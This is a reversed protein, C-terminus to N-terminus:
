RKRDLGLLRATTGLDGGEAMLEHLLEALSMNGWAVARRILYPTPSHPEIRNLYEAIEALRRYADDRSRLPGWGVGEVPEAPEASDAPAPADTQDEPPQAPATMAEGRDNLVTEVFARMQQLPEALRALSPADRGCLTDLAEALRGHAGIAAALDEDLQHYFPSPTLGVSTLFRARTVAGEAEAKEFEKRQRQAMVDMLQAKQWDEWVYDDAEAGTVRTVPVHQLALPLKENVWYFIGLRYELDDDEMKPYLSPWFAHCLATVLNLGDALGRPGELRTLGEVLWAAIQLDKSREALAGVALERLRAWDARKLDAAWVGQPLSPDDERRAERLEDYIGEYRLDAGAPDDGPIPQLLRDIDITAM